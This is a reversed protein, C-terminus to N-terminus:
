LTDDGPRVNLGLAGSIAECLSWCRFDEKAKLLRGAAVAPNPVVGYIIEYVGQVHVGYNSSATQM